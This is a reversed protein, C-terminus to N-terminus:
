CTLPNQKLCWSLTRTLSHCPSTHALTFTMCLTQSNVSHTHTHVIMHLKDDDLGARCGTSRTLDAHTTFLSPILLLSYNFYESPFLHSLSVFLCIVASRLLSTPLSALQLSKEGAVEKSREGKQWGKIGRRMNRGGGQLILRSNLQLEAGGGGM